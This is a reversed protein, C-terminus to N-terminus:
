PQLSLIEVEFPERNPSKVKTTEGVMKGLLAQAMPASAFVQRTPDTKEQNDEIIIISREEDSIIPIRIGVTNGVKITSLEQSQEKFPLQPPSDREGASM